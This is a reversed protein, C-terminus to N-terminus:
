FYEPFDKEAKAQMKMIHDRAPNNPSIRLAQDWIDWAQQTDYNRFYTPALDFYAGTLWPNITIAAVLKERVQSPSTIDGGPVKRNADIYSGAHNAMYIDFLYAYEPAKEKAADLQKVMKLYSEDDQTKKSIVIMTEKAFPDDMAGVMGAKIAANDKAVEPGRMIILEMAALMARLADKQGVYATIKDEYIKQAPMEAGITKRIAADLAADRNYIEKLGEPMAAADASVPESSVLTWDVTIARGMERVTSHLAGFATNPESLAKKVIPHLVMQHTIFKAYSGHLEQPIQHPSLTFTALDRGEATFTTKGDKEEKKIKDGTTQNGPSGLLIDIDLESQMADASIMGGSKPDSMAKQLVQNLMKRNQKEMARFIPAAYLAHTELTKDKTNIVHFHKKPFDYVRLIDGDEVSMTQPYLTVTVDKDEEKRTVKNDGAKEDKVGKLQMRSHHETVTQAKFTLALGDALAPSVFLVFALAALYRTM